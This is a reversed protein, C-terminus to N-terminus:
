LRFYTAQIAAGSAAVANIARFNKIATYGTILLKEGATALHGIGTDATVTPVTGDCTWRISATEVSILVEDAPRTRDFPPNTSVTETLNAATLGTSSTLTSIKEHAYPTKNGNIFTAM